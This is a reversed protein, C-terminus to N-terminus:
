RQQQGPAQQATAAQLIGDCVCRGRWGATVGTGAKLAAIRIALSPVSAHRRQPSIVPHCGGEAGQQCLLFAVLHKAQFPVPLAPSHQQPSAAPWGRAPSAWVRKSIMPLQAFGAPTAAAFCCTPRKGCTHLTCSRRLNILVAADHRVSATAHVLSTYVDAIGTAAQTGRGQLADM